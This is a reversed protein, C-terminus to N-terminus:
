FDVPKAKDTSQGTESGTSGREADSAARVRLNNQVHSVGVCQEACDEAVHKAQRSDVYGSLTVEGGSVEVTVDSADLTDDNSLRDSVDEKIREDSRVYGKPGKGRFSGAGARAASRGEDARGEAAVYRSIWNGKQPWGGRPSGDSAGQDGRDGYGRDFGGSSRADYGEPGNFRDQATFSRYGGRDPSGGSRRAFDFAHGGSRDPNRGAEGHYGGSEGWNRRDDYDRREQDRGGRYSEDGQGYDEFRRRLYGTDEDQTWRGALRQRDDDQDRSSFDRDNRGYAM